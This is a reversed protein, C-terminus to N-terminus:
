WVECKKLPNMNAGKPCNFDRAFEESNQLYGLVRYKGPTLTGVRFLSQLTQSRYVSCWTQANQIWFLQEPTFNLSFLSPEPKHTEMYKKYARYAIKIGGNDAINEGLTSIGNLPINMSPERFKGYQDIVCKTKNVYTEKTANHWWNNLNGNKDFRSGLDDYGHTIEHGIVFGIAAYNLYKPRNSNFFHDQFIGAPIRMKNEAADYYANIEIINSLMRWDNRDAKERLLSSWKRYTFQNSELISEFLTSSPMELESYFDILATDNELEAPYGVHPTMKELKEFAAHRTDDDMWSATALIEKFEDKITAVMIEAELKSEFNFFRRVYMASTAISMEILVTSVCDRWRPQRKHEGYFLKQYDTDRQKFKESLYPIAQATLRWMLYNALTRKSTQELLAGFKDFFNLDTVAVLENENFSMNPYSDRVFKLWNFYPFRKQMDGISMVNFLLQPNRRGRHPIVIKTLNVEFEIMERIETTNPTAGLMTLIDVIYNFYNLVYTDNWGFKLFDIHVSTEPSDFYIIRRSTDNLSLDVAVKLIFKGAVGNQRMDVLTKFFEWSTENWSKGEIIPFKGLKNILNMIPTGAALEIASTNMCKQFLEKSQRFPKIEREGIPEQLLELIQKVLKDGFHNFITMSVKDDPIATERDYKACAFEYFDDCPDVTQDMKSRMQCLATMCSDTECPKQRPLGDEYLLYGLFLSGLIMIACFISALILCLKFKDLKIAKHM